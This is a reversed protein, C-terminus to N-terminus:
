NGCAVFAVFVFVTKDCDVSAVLAVGVTGCVVCMVAIVFAFVIAVVEAVIGFRLHLLLLCLPM